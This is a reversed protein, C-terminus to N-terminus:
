SIFTMTYELLSHKKLHVKEMKSCIHCISSVFTINCFNSIEFAEQM